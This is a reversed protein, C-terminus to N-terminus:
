EAQTGSATTMRIPGFSSLKPPLLLLLAPVAPSMSLLAPERDEFLRKIVAYM